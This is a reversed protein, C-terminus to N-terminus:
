GDLFAHWGGMLDQDLYAVWLRYARWPDCWLKNELIRAQEERRQRMVDAWTIVHRGGRADIEVRAVDPAPNKGWHM